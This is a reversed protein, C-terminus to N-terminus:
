GVADSASEFLDIPVASNPTDITQQADIGLSFGVMGVVLLSAAVAGWGLMRRVSTAQAPRFPVIQGAVAKEPVARRAQRVFDDSVTEAAAAIRAALWDDLLAPDAALAAEVAEAAAEDLRHEAYAALTM